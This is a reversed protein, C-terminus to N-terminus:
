ILSTMSILDKATSQEGVRKRTHGDDVQHLAVIGSSFVVM